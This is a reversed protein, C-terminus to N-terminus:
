INYNSLNGIQVLFYNWFQAGSLGFRNRMVRKQPFITGRCDSGGAVDSENIIFTDICRYCRTAVPGLRYEDLFIVNKKASPALWELVEFM